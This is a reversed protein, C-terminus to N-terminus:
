HDATHHRGNHLQYRPRRGDRPSTTAIVSAGIVEKAVQIAATGVGGSASLVLVTEWPRLQAKRILINWIPLYVTPVAAAEEFSVENAIIHANVAPAKVYEAYSGDLHSGLFQFSSCLDDAGSLCSSCVGCSIRPNIVVRHGVELGRVQSGVEVVEGAADGGLIHPLPFRRQQGRVGARVYTDLRNLAVAGVKIKVEHSEITPDPREGYNLVEPGGHEEIFIAKM